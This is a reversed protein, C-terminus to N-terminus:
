HVFNIAVVPTVTANTNHSAPIVRTGLIVGLNSKWNYEVAPAFAFVESSGTNMLVGGPNKGGSQATANYGAVRTNWNHRYAADLALV